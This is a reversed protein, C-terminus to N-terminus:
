TRNVKTISSQNRATITKNAIENKFNKILLIFDLFHGHRSSSAELANSLGCSEEGGENGERKGKKRKQSM